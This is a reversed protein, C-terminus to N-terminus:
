RDAYVKSRVQKNLADLDINKPEYFFKMGWLEFWHGRGIIRGGLNMQAKIPPMNDCLINSKVSKISPQLDQLMKARVYTYVGANRYDLHTANDGSCLEGNQFDM